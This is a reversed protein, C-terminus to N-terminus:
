GGAGAARHASLTTRYPSDVIVRHHQTV